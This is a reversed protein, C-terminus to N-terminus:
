IQEHYVCLRDKNTANVRIEKTKQINIQLGAAKAQEALDQLKGKMAQLTPAILIIDHAYDLDELQNVLEWQSGRGRTDKTVAAKMIIHLVM